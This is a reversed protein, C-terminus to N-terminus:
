APDIDRLESWRLFRGTRIWHARSEINDVAYEGWVGQEPNGQCEIEHWPQCSGCACWWVAYGWTWEWGGVGYLGEDDPEIIATVTRAGEDFFQWSVRLVVARPHGDEGTGGDIVHVTDVSDHGCEDALQQTRAALQRVVELTFRPSVFGNWLDTPDVKADFPGLFDDICVRTEIMQRDPM